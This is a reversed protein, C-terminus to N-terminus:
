KLFDKLIDINNQEESSMEGNTGDVNKDSTFNNGQENSEIPAVRAGKTFTKSGGPTERIEEGDRRTTKGAIHQTDSFGPLIREKKNYDEKRNTYTDQHDMEAYVPRTEDSRPDIGYSVTLNTRFSKKGSTTISINHSINEIHYVIGNFEINDGVSIPDQIGVCEITGSEKLHGGIVMDAILNAWQKGKTSKSAEEPYDYDATALFPKLGHRTIDQVDFQYNGTGSQAARNKGDNVHTTRTYIQVFNVRSAEDRGLNMSYVLNPNLVWRPLDLFRTVDQKETPPSFKTKLDREKQFHNSTFPKQRIVLSPMIRGNPNVRYTTYMENILSNTYKQIIAWVKVNNWYEPEAVKNGQLDIGTNYFGAPLESSPEIEPNFGFKPAISQNGKSAQWIGIYYHYLDAAVKADKLGLLGSVKEPLQFHVLTPNQIKTNTQKKGVGITSNIVVPLINQILFNKSKGKGKSSVVDGWWGEFQQMFVKFNGSLEAFIQPDYYIVTNFETFGFAQMEFYYAKVGTNPDTRLVKSVKQVKFVGKFGDNYNNIPLGQIARNRLSKPNVDEGLSNIEAVTYDWNVMNVFVYDGPAIATAYNLDGALLVASLSSTIGQKSNSVTVSIADNYIVLPKRTEIPNGEYNFTDRNEYRLVTLLYAPSTQHSDVSNPNITKKYPNSKM